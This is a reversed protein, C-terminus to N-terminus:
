MDQYMRYIKVKRYRPRGRIVMDAEILLYKKTKPLLQIDTMLMFLLCCEEGSDVAWVVFDHNAMMGIGIFASIGAAANHPSAMDMNQFHGM